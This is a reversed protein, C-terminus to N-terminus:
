ALNEPPPTDLSKPHNIHLKTKFLKKGKKESSSMLYVNNNIHYTKIEFDEVSNKKENEEEDGFESLLSIECSDEVLTFYTPSVITFLLFVLLCYTTINKLM